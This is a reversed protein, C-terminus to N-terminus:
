ATTDSITSRPIIVKPKYKLCATGSARYVMSSPMEKSKIKFAKCGRGREREWTIFFFECKFCNIKNEGSM